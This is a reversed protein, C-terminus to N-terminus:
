SALVVLGTRIAHVAAATRSQVDFKRFIRGTHNVVTKTSLHLKSGIEKNSFGECICELIDNERETLEDPRRVPRKAIYTM